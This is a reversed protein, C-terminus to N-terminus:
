YTKEFVVKSSQGPRMHVIKVHRGYLMGRSYLDAKYKKAQALTDFFNVRSGWEVVYQDKPPNGRRVMSRPIQAEIKGSRTVRVKATIWRDRPLSAPNSLKEYDSHSFTAGYFPKYGAKTIKVIYAHKLGKSKVYDKVEELTGQWLGRGSSWLKNWSEVSVTKM